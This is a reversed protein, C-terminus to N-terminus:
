NKGWQNLLAALVFVLPCELKIAIENSAYAKVHDYYMTGPKTNEEPYAV